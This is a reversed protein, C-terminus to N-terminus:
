QKEGLVPARHGVKHMAKTGSTWGTELCIINSFM